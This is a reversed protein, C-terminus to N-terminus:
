HSFSAQDYIRDATDPRSERASFSKLGILGSHTHMHTTEAQDIQTNEAVKAKIQQCNERLALCHKADLIGRADEEDYEQHHEALEDDNVHEVLKGPRLIRNQYNDIDVSVHGDLLARGTIGGFNLDVAGVLHVQSVRVDVLESVRSRITM